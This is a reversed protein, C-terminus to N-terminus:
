SPEILTFRGRDFVLGVERLADRSFDIVDGHRVKDPRWDADTRARQLAQDLRKQVEDSDRGARIQILELLASYTVVAADRRAREEGRLLGRRKGMISDFGDNTM